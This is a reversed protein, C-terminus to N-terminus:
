RRVWLTNLSLYIIVAMLPILYLLGYVSNTTYLLCSFISIFIFGIINKLLNETSYHYDKDLINFTNMQLVYIISVIPAYLIVSVHLVALSTVIGACILMVLMGVLLVSKFSKLKFM